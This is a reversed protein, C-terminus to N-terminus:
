IDLILKGNWKVCFFVSYSLYKVAEPLADIYTTTLPLPKEGGQEKNICIHLNGNQNNETKHSKVVHLIHISYNVWLLLEFKGPEQGM